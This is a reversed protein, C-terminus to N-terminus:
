MQKKVWLRESYLEKRMKRQTGELGVPAPIEMEDGEATHSLMEQPNAQSM